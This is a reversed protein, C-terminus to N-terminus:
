FYYFLDEISRLIGDHWATLDIGILFLLTVLLEFLFYIPLFIWLSIFILFAGLALLLISGTVVVWGIRFVVGIFRTAVQDMISGGFDKHLPALRPIQLFMERISFNDEIAQLHYICFRLLDLLGKSYWWVFAKIPIFIIDRYNLLRFSSYKILFM